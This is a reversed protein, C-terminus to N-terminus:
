PQKRALEVRLEQIKDISVRADVRAQNAIAEAKATGAQVKADILIHMTSYMVLLAGIASASMALALIAIALGAGHISISANAAPSSHGSSTASANSSDQLAVKSSTEDSM